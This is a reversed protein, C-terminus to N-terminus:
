ETSVQAICTYRQIFIKNHLAICICSYLGRAGYLTIEQSYRLKRKAIKTTKLVLEVAYELLPIAAVIKAAVCRQLM